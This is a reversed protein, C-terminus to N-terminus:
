LWGSGTLHPARLSVGVSSAPMPGWADPRGLRCARAGPRLPKNTTPRGVGREVLMSLSLDRAPPRALWSTAKDVNTEAAKPPLSAQALMTGRAAGQADGYRRVVDASPTTGTTSSSTANVAKSILCSASSPSGLQSTHRAVKDSRTGWTLCSSAAGPVTLTATPEPEKKMDELEPVLALMPVGKHEQELAEYMYDLLLNHATAAHIAVIHWHHARASQSAVIPRTEM